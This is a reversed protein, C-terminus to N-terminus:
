CCGGTGGSTVRVRRLIPRGRPADRWVVPVSGASGDGCGGGIGRDASVAQGALAIADGSSCLLNRYAPLYSFTLHRRRRVLGGARGTATIIVCGSCCVEDGVHDREGLWDFRGAGTELRVQHPNLEVVVRPGLRHPLHGLGIVIVSLLLSGFAQRNVAPGGRVHGDVARDSRRLHPTCARLDYRWKHELGIVLNGHLDVIADVQYRPM